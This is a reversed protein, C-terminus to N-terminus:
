PKSAERQELKELLELFYDPVAESVVNDYIEQLKRGIHAQVDREVPACAPTQALRDREELVCNDVMELAGTLVRM